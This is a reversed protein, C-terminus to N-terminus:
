TGADRASPCRAQDSGDATENALRDLEEAIHGLEQGLHQWVTRDTIDAGHFTCFIVCASSWFGGKVSSQQRCSREARNNLM